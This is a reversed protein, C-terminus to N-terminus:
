GAKRYLGDFEARWSKGGDKSIEWLQRVTGDANDFWTIRNRAASGDPDVSDGEMVMRDGSRAGELELTTGERWVWLQRWRKRQTDYFNLSTGASGSSGRWSEQLVCGDLIPTIRNFGVVRGGETLSVEWNGAWFDFEHSKPDACDDAHASGAVALLTVM